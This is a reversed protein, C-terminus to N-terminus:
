NLFYIKNCKDPVKSSVYSDFKTPSPNFLVFDFNRNEDVMLLAALNECRGCDNPASFVTVCVNEHNWCYRNQLM